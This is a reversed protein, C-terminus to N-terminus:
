IAVIGQVNNAPLNGSVVEVISLNDGDIAYVSIAGRLGQLQYLYDGDDSIWLGIWGETTAFASAGDTTNGIAGVGQAAVQDILSVNGNDFSYSAISAEIANTVFFTNEDDTFDIWCATRGTNNEGSAVDTNISTLSGDDNIQWTSVSGDQLAPFAPPMGNSQFERAETVVVYNDDVIQFGIASPLNRGEANDRLTSTASGVINSSLSGNENVTYVVVENQDQSELAFAGANLSTVVLFDGDPSFQVCSPRSPLNRTSNAIPSLTGDDMLMFGTITGQHGPEGQDEFEARTINSVYVIGNVGDIDSETHAISNPGVAGTPQTDGLALSFDDQVALSTITNSGANVALVFNNDETKTLSYASILPDLGEGGDFDGGQGGTALSGIFELTGDDNRGYSVISNNGQVSTGAVQGNGNSMAYVAGVFQSSSGPGDDDGCSTIFLGLTLMSFLIFLISIQKM